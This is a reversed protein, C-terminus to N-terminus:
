LKIASDVVLIGNDTPEINGSGDAFSFRLKSMGGMCDGAVELSREFNYKREHWSFFYESSQNKGYANGLAQAGVLLAREVGYGATLSANVTQDSETQASTYRNAVLIVKTSDSPLFRITSRPLVRVLIGNWMGPEGSFLPHKTGYSKRNWANQLFTRWNNTTSTSAKIQAWQRPTLFLVAKIPEDQAAPDDAIKVPQLPVEMDDLMLSLADIHDLSWIDTSDISGLQLGGQVLGTGDIVYHRNYTPAKVTNVMINAFDPDTALPVVWDKGTMMGRAGAMHVLATQNQLRPFYGALQAMAIGRLNHLTRQQSMKGGADVVKTSLDIKIDMSSTSLKEGKGEANVDGMLPKGNITDFADVSISEGETKSLDTVRVVPMDKATQGKLKAEADSQKPAPGTLNTLWTPAQISRAFLAAGFIKRALVSGAPVNTQSM